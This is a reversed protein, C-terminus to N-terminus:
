SMQPGHPGDLDATCRDQATMHILAVVTALQPYRVVGAAVAMAGLALAQIFLSPKFSSFCIQEGCSVKMHDEGEWFGQPRQGQSVLIHNVGDEEPGCRLGEFLHCLIGLVQSRLHAENGDQVGPALGEHVMGMQMADDCSSPQGQIALSPYPALPVEKDRDFHEGPHKPALEQSVEFLESLFPPQREGAVNSRQFFAASEFGQQGAEIRLFPHHVTFGWEVVNLLDHVVQASVGVPHGDRVVPQYRKLAVPEGESVPIAMVIVGDLQHGQFSGLENATKEEVDQWIPEDFDPVIADQTASISFLFQSPAHCKEPDMRSVLFFV